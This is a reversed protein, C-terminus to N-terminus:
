PSPIDQHPVLLLTTVVVRMTLMLGGGDRAWRERVEGYVSHSIARQFVGLDIARKQPPFQLTPLARARGYVSLCRRAPTLSFGGGGGGKIGLSSALILRLLFLCLCLPPGDADSQQSYQLGGVPKAARETVRNINYRYKLTRSLTSDAEVVNLFIWFLAM